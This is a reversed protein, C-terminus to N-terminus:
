RRGDTRTGIRPMGLRWAVGLQDSDVRLSFARGRLRVFVQDTYQTIPLVAAVTKTNTDGDAAGPYDKATVTMTLEPMPSTSNRFTIDPIIRTAFMFQDGDGLDADSSQIYAEIPVTPNQSGDDYDIEHEYLYGDEGAAIPNSYSVNNLWATRSMTGYYWLNQAYNFVVYNDSESAETTPYFWWVESFSPNHGGFVRQKDAISIRTFV